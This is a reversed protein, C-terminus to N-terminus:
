KLKGLILQIAIFVLIASVGVSLVLFESIIGIFLIVASILLLVMSIIIRAIM